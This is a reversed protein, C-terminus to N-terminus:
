ASLIASYYEMSTLSFTASRLDIKPNLRLMREQGFADRDAKARRRGTMGLREERKACPGEAKVSQLLQSKRFQRWSQVRDLLGKRKESGNAGRFNGRVPTEGIWGGSDLRFKAIARV